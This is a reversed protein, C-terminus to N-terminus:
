NDGRNRRIGVLGVFGVLSLCLLIKFNPTPLITSFNIGVLKMLNLIEEMFYTAIIVSTVFISTMPVPFILNKKM